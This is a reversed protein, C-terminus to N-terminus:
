TLWKRVLEKYMSISPTTYPDVGKMVALYITAIDHLAIGSLYRYLIDRSKMQTWDMFYIRRQILFEKLIRPYIDGNMLIYPTHLTDQSYSYIEIQNHFIEPIYATYSEHKSNENLMAKFRLAISEMGDPYYIALRSGFIARAIKYADGGNKQPLQKEIFEKLKKSTTHVDRLRIRRNLLKLIPALLQPLGLRPLPAAEIKYLSWGYKDAIGELEGNSTIVVSDRGVERIKEAARLVELTNGSHSVLINMSGKIIHRPINPTNYVKVDIPISKTYIIDKLIHGVIGSGGMGVILVRRPPRELSDIHEYTKWLNEGWGRYYHLMKLANENKSLLNKFRRWTLM